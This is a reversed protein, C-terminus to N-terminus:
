STTAGNSVPRRAVWATRAGRVALDGRRLVGEPGDGDILADLTALDDGGLRGDLRPRIHRLYAHAYRGAAAPSPPGLEIVFRRRAVVVFGAAALAPGWDAGLQPASGALRDRELAALWRSELGPGVDDPLFRSSGDLEAVALLGGPRLLAFVDGLLRAPDAVEHLSNSAWAVDAPGIAPLPTDLDARVTRVRGALGAALARERVRGLMGESKDVAVLEAGAFVGALAITGSGTGAGLDVVRRVGDGAAEGVWGTLDALYSSLVEADLDLLEALAAPDHQHHGPGHDHHETM